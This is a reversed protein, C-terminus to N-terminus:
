IAIMVKTESLLSHLHPLSFFDRYMLYHFFLQSQRRAASIEILLPLLRVGFYFLKFIHESTNM